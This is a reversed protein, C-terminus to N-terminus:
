RTPRGSGAGPTRASHIPGSEVWGLREFPVQEAAHGPRRRATLNFFLQKLRDFGRHLPVLVTGLAGGAIGAGVIVVDPEAHRM